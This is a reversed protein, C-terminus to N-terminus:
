LYRVGIKYGGDPRVPDCWRVEALTSQRSLMARGAAAETMDEAPQKERIFLITGPAYPQPAELCAGHQNHDRAFGHDKPHPLRTNFYAFTLPVRTKYRRGRNRREVRVIAQSMM